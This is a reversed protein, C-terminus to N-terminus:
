GVAELTEIFDLWEGISEVAPKSTERFKFRVKLAKSELLRQAIVGFM